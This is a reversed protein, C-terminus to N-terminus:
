TLYTVLTGKLYVSCSQQDGYIVRRSERLVRYLFNALSQGAPIEQKCCLVRRSDGLKTQRVMM